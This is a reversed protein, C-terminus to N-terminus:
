VVARRALIAERYAAVGSAIDRRPRWDFKKDIFSIDFATQVDPIDDVGSTLRARLHPIARRAV